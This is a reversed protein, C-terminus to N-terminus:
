SLTGLDHHGLVCSPPRQGALEKMDRFILRM